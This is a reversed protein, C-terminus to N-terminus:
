ARQVIRVHRRAYAARAAAAGDPYPLPPPPPPPPAHQHGLRAEEATGARRQVRLFTELSRLERQRCTQHAVAQQITAASCRCAAWGEHLLAAVSLRERAGSAHRRCGEGLWAELRGSGLFAADLARLERECFKGGRRSSCCVKLNDAGGEAALLAPELHFAPVHAHWGLWSRLKRSVAPLVV